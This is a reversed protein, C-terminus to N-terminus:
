AGHVRKWIAGILGGVAYGVMATVVVLALARWFVFPGVQYPPTIFHLWFVFDIVPQAWGLLVLVSWTLHWCAVFAGLVVGLKHPSVGGAAM